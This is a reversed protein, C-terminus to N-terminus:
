YSYATLPAGFTFRIDSGAWKAIQNATIRIGLGPVGFKGWRTARMLAYDIFGGGRLNDALEKPMDPAGLANVKELIQQQSLTEGANAPQGAFAPTLFFMILAASLAVMKVRGM